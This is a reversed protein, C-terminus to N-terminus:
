PRASYRGSPPSIRNEALFDRIKADARIDDGLLENADDTPDIWAIRGPYRQMLCECLETLCSWWEFGSRERYIEEGDHCILLYDPSLSVGGEVAFTFTLEDGEFDPLAKIQERSEALERQTQKYADFQPLAEIAETVGRAAAEATEAQGPYCILGFKHDCERCHIEFLDRFMETALQIGTGSWGCECEFTDTRWSSYYDYM